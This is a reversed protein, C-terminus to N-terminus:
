RDVALQLFVVMREGMEGVEKVLEGWGGSARVRELSTVAAEGAAELKGLQEQELLGLVSVCSDFLRPGDELCMTAPLLLPQLRLLLEPPLSPLLPQARHLSSALRHTSQLSLVEM